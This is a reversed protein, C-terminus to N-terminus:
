QSSQLWEVRRDLHDWKDEDVRRHWHEVRWAVWTSCSFRVLVEVDGRWRCTIVVGRGDALIM